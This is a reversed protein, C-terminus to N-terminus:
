RGIRDLSYIVNILKVTLDIKHVQYLAINTMIHIKVPILKIKNQKPNKSQHKMASIPRYTKNRM